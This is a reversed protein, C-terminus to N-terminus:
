VAKKHKLTGMNKDSFQEFSFNINIIFYMYLKSFIKISHPESFVFYKKFTVNICNFNSKKLNKIRTAFVCSSPSLKM